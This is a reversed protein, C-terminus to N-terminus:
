AKNIQTNAKLIRGCMEYDELNTYYDMLRNTFEENGFRPHTQNYPIKGSVTHNFIDDESLDFASMSASFEDNKWESRFQNIYQIIGMQLNIAEKNEALLRKNQNFCEILENNSSNTKPKIEILKRIRKENERIKELNYNVREKLVDVANYMKEKM